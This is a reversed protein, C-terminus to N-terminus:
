AHDLDASVAPTRVGSDWSVLVDCQGQPPDIYEVIRGTDHDEGEGGKVRDGIEFKRTTM